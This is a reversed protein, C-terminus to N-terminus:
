LSFIKFAGNDFVVTVNAGGPNNVPLGSSAQDVYCILKANTWAATSTNYNAGLHEFFVLANISVSTGPVSTITIDPGDFVGNTITIGSSQTAGTTANLFATKVINSTGVHNLISHTAANSGGTGPVYSTSVLAVGINGSLLDISNTGGLFAEKASNYIFSM